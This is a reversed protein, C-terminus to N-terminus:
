EQRLTLLPDVRAARRAPLYSAVLAVAILVASAAGLAVGDVTGLVPFRESAWMALGVAVGLGPVLGILAVRVGSRVIQSILDAPAAGLALRIGMERSRQVVDSSLVGYLGIAALALAVCSFAFVLALQTRDEGSAERLRVELPAIRGVVRGPDVDRFVQRLATADTQGRVVFRLLPWFLRQHSVYMEPMPREQSWERPLDPVIGVIRYGPANSGREPSVSQGLAGGNPFYTRVFTENVVTEPRQESFWQGERLPVQLTSLYGSSVARMAVPQREQEPSLTKGAIRIPNDQSGGELPLRDTLGASVVGPLAAMKELVQRSFGHVTNGDATWNFDVTASWVSQSVFGLPREQMTVFARGLLAVAVLLVVSLGMQSAVLFRRATLASPAATSRSTLILRRTQAMQLAPFAGFIAGCLLTVTAAFLFVRLDLAAAALRPLGSPLLEQLLPLLVSAIIWGAVGGASALVVSEVFYLQFLRGGGAGLSARIAAERQREAARALLLNTLNVCAILLVFGATGLLLLLPTRAENTVEEHASVALTRLRADTEPYQAALRANVTALEANFAALDAGPRLRAYISLYKARRNSRDQLTVDAPAIADFDEPFTLNAPLVGIITVPSQNLTIVRGVIRPDGQFQRQWEGHTLLTVAEGAGRAEADTLGRGLVPVTGLFPLIPGYSRLITLRRADGEGTLTAGESYFGAVHAASPLQEAFDYLRAANSGTRRGDMLDRVAVLEEPSPLPLAQFLATDVISFIACNAGLGLGLSLLAPLLIGPRRRLNKFAQVTDRGLDVFFFSREPIPSTGSM